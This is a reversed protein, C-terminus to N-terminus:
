IKGRTRQQLLNKATIYQKDLVKMRELKTKVQSKLAEYENEMEKLFINIEANSMKNIDRMVNTKLINNWKQM